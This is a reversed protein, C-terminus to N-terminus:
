EESRRKARNLKLNIVEKTVDRREDVADQDREDKRNREQDEDVTHKLAEDETSSIFVTLLPVFNISYKDDAEYQHDRDETDNVKDRVALTKQRSFM